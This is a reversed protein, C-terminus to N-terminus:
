AAHAIVGVRPVFIMADDGADGLARLAREATAQEEADLLAGMLAVEDERLRALESPAAVDPFVEAEVRGFGARRLVGPLKRGAHPDAGARRLAREWLPALALAAPHEIAGGFDPEGVAVLAGGPALVRRVERGVADAEAFWMWACQTIVLDFAGDRFPLAHADARVRAAGADACRLAAADRDVAVLPGRVRGALSASAAGFGCALDLTAGRSGPLVRRLLRERQPALRASQRALADRDAM